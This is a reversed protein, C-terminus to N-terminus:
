SKAYNSWMRKGHGYPAKKNGEAVCKILISFDADADKQNENLKKQFVHKKFCFEIRKYINMMNYISASLM